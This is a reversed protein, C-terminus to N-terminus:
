TKEPWFYDFVENMAVGMLAAGVFMAVGVVWGVPNSVLFAVAATGAAAGVAGAALTVGEKGAQRIKNNATIVSYVAYALSAILFVRGAQGYRRVAASAKKNPRGASHVIEMWVLNREDQTLTRFARGYKERAYKEQLFDLPLGRAKM